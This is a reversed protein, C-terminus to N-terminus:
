ARHRAENPVSRLTPGLRQSRLTNSAPDMGVGPFEIRSRHPETESADVRWLIQRDSGFDAGTPPLRLRTRGVLRDRTPFEAAHCRLREHRAAVALTSTRSTQAPLSRRISGLHSLRRRRVRRADPLKMMDRDTRSIHHAQRREVAIHEFQRLNLPLAELVSGNTGDPQREIRSDQHEFAAGFGLAVHISDAATRKQECEGDGLGLPRAELLADLCRTLTDFITAL